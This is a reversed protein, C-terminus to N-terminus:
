RHNKEKAKIIIKQKSYMNVENAENEKRFHIHILM